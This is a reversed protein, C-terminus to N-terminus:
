VAKGGPPNIAAGGGNRGLRQWWAPTKGPLKRVIEISPKVLWRVETDPWLASAAGRRIWAAVPRAGAALAQQTVGMGRHVWVLPFTALRTTPFVAVAAFAAFLHLRVLLPLHEVFAPEPRGHVLSAAWPAVTVSAWASGWRLVGAAMLGSAVGIFLFSLFVSDAFDSVLSWGGRSPRRIHLWASRLFAAAVGVGVAFGATELLLLHWPTRTWALVARPFLLAGLHAAALLAWAAIALRSGLFVRKALPLVRKVAPLRDSTLLLRVILGVACLTLSLYPWSRFLFTGPHANM